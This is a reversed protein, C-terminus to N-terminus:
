RRRIRVYSFLGYFALVMGVIQAGYSFFSLAFTPTLLKLVMLFPIVVGLIMLLTGIIMSKIPSLSEM